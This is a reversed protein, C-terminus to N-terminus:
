ELPAGQQIRGPPPLPDDGDQGPPAPTDGDPAGIDTSPDLEWAEADAAPHEHGSWGAPPLDPDGTDAPSPPDATPADPPLDDPTDQWSPDEAGLDDIEALSPDPTPTHRLSAGMWDGLANGPQDDLWRGVVEYARVMARGNRELTRLAANGPTNAEEWSGRRRAEKGSELLYRLADRVPQPADEPLELADPTIPRIGDLGLVGEFYAHVPGSWPSIVVQQGATFFETISELLREITDLATIFTGAPTIWQWGRLDGSADALPLLIAYGSQALGSSLYTEDHGDVATRVVPHPPMPPAPADGQRAMEFARTLYWPQGFVRRPSINGNGDFERVVFEGQQLSLFDNSDFWPREMETVRLNAGSLSPGKGTKPSANRFDQNESWQQVFVRRKGM